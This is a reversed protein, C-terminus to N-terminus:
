EPLGPILGDGEDRLLERVQELSAEADPLILDSPELSEPALPTGVERVAALLSGLAARFAAEDGAEVAQLLEDDLRNLRNLDGEAVEFQGEGLVRMIM